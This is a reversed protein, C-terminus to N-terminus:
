VREMVQGKKVGTGGVALVTSKYPADEHGNNGMVRTEVIKTSWGKTKVAPKITEGTNTGVM